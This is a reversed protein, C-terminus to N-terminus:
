RHRSIVAQSKLSPRKPPNLPLAHRRFLRTRSAARLWFMGLDVVETVLLGSRGFTATGARLWFMRLDVLETLVLLPLAHTDPILSAWQGSLLELLGFPQRPAPPALPNGSTARCRARM